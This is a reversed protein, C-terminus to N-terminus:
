AMCRCPSGGGPTGRERCRGPATGSATRRSPAASVARRAEASGHGGAQLKERDGAQRHHLSPIVKRRKDSAPKSRAPGASARGRHPPSRASSRRWPRPACRRDQRRRATPRPPRAPPRLDALVRPDDLHHQRFRTLTTRLRGFRIIMCCRSPKTIALAPTSWDFTAAPPRVGAPAAAAARDRRNPRLWGRRATPRM